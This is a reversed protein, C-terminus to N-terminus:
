HGQQCDELAKYVSEYGGAGDLLFDELTLSVFLCQGRSHHVLFFIGFTVKRQISKSLQEREVLLSKAVCMFRELTFPTLVPLLHDLRGGQKITISARLHHGGTRDTVSASLRVSPVMECVGLQLIVM